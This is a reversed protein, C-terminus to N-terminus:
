ECMLLWGQGVPADWVIGLFCGVCQDWCTVWALLASSRSGPTKEHFSGRLIAADRLRDASWLSRRLAEGKAEAMDM